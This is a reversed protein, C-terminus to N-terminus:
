IGFTNRSGFCEVETSDYETYTSTNNDLFHWLKDNLAAMQQWAYWVKNAPSANTGNQQNNMVEGTGSSFTVNNTMYVSYVYYAIPSLKEANTFGDWKYTKGSVTYEKGNKLDTWKADPTDAELGETFAKYLSYGLAKKLYEAEYIPIFDTSVTNKVVPSNGASIGAINIAAIFYTHDILSM